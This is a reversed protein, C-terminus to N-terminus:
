WDLGGLFDALADQAHERGRAWPPPASDNSAAEHYGNVYAVSIRRITVAARGMNLGAMRGYAEIETYDLAALGSAGQRAVGIEGIVEIM